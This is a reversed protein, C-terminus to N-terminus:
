IESLIKSKFYENFVNTFIQFELISQIELLTIIKKSSSTNQPLLHLKDKFMTVFDIVHKFDKNFELYHYFSLSKTM